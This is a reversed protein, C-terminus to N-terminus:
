HLPPPLAAAAPPWVGALVTRKVQRLHAVLYVPLRMLITCVLELPMSFPLTHRAQDGEGAWQESREGKYWSVWGVDAYGVM